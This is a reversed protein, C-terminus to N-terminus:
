KEWAKKTNNNNQVGEWGIRNMAAASFKKGQSPPGM